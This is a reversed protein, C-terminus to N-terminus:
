RQNGEQRPRVEGVTSGSRGAPEECQDTRDRLGGVFDTIRLRIKVEGGQGNMRGAHEPVQEKHQDGWKGRQEGAQKAVVAVPLNEGEAVLDEDELTLQTLAGAEAPSPLQRHRKRMHAHLLGVQQGTEHDDSGGVEDAPVSLDDVAVAGGVGAGIPAGQSRDM